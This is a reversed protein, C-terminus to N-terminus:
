IINGGIIGISECGMKSKKYGGFGIRERRVYLNFTTVYVNKMMLGIRASIMKLYKKFNCYTDGFQITEMSKHSLM